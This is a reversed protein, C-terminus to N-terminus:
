LLDTAKNSKLTDIIKKVNQAKDKKMVLIVDEEEVVVLDEVDVCCIPKSHSRIYCNETNHTFIKGCIINQEVTKNADIDYLSKYSGVDSWLLNMSIVALNTDHLKEIIAYDISIDQCEGFAVAEPYLEMGDVKARDLAKEVSQLLKPQYRQFLEYLTAVSGMFIGANWLYNSTKLFEIAMEINPKEVFKEVLFSCGNMREGLKIYGYGTEPYLPQVGFCVVKGALALQVGKQLYERFLVDNNIFADSPSCVIIERDKQQRHLHAIATAIAPATNRVQPELIVMADTLNNGLVERGLLERHRINGSIIPASFLGDQKFRQITQTFLTQHNLLAIFQKPKQQRSLPWLRTGNGGSLIIPIINM